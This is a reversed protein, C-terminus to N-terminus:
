TSLSIGRLLENTSLSVFTTTERHGNGEKWKELDSNKRKELSEYLHAIRIKLASFDISHTNPEITFQRGMNKKPAM